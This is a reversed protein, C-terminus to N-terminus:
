PLNERVVSGGGGRRRIQNTLKNRRRFYNKVKERFRHLKKKRKQGAPAQKLIKKARKKLNENHNKM